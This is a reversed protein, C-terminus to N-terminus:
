PRVATLLWETGLAAERPRTAPLPRGYGVGLEAADHSTARWGHGTLWDVPPADFGSRWLSRLEISADGIADLSTGGLPSTVVTRNGASVALRSAPVSMRGVRDLLRDNEEETLYLLLGEALWATPRGADHGAERLAAPWDERLDAPVATRVCGAPTNAHALVQEKFRMMDPLDLEWVRVRAPWPLRLARTDLGAALVVVQDIGAAAAALVYEDFFRTRVVLYAAMRAWFLGADGGTDRNGPFDLPLGAAATFRGAWPDTFLRDPRTSEEARLAAVGLATLGVGPPIAPEQTV